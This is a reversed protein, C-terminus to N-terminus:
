SAACKSTTELARHSGKLLRDIHRVAVPRDVLGRNARIQRKLWGDGIEKRMINAAGNVDANILEGGCARYLGRKVRRGSFVPVEGTEKVTEYVPVIDLDLASAKSTYSEERVVVEIWYKEAKYILMNVLRRHPISTFKQNNVSGINIDQKWDPNLGIVIKGTDTRLCEQIIWHSVKHFYDNILCFRKRSKSLIHRPKGKSALQAKDKNYKANISKIVKGKILVPHYGQQSYVIAALNDIGLDIGIVNEPNLKITTDAETKYVLEVVFSTGLPVIRVDTVVTECAKANYEQCECCTIKLPEFGFAKSGALHLFGDEIKYGNRNIVYTKAQKAYKPLRPRSKYKHPNKEYDKKAAIWSKWNDGVIQTTRQAGASPLLQYINPHETKLIKDAKSHNIPKGAFLAQRMQYLTANHVYRAARCYQACAAHNAHGPQIIIQETRKLTMTAIRRVMTRITNVLPILCDIRKAERAARSPRREICGRGIWYTPRPIGCVDTLHRPRIDPADPRCDNDPDFDRWPNFLNDTSPQAVVHSLFTDLVAQQM